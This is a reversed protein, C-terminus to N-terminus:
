FISPARHGGFVRELEGCIEGLTAGADVADILRPVLNDTAAAAEAVRALAARAQAGDRAERHAAVQARRRAELSEDLRFEVRPPPEGDLVHENVGVVKKEGREIARQEAVASRHIERQTFGAEIAKVAGGLADVKGILERAGAEIADTLDEVYPCGGLPDIVRAVGSEHALVQQTRLALVAARESPLALAEDWANTHLSQTGGLVAALAQLTVRAVNVDPQQATLTSGGTQTHFRLALSSEQRPAFREQMLRAWLRRAARFKAVEEFLDSHAAFFFSLRSAFADVDLGAAVAAGVYALGHALTFGVEQVATCGAERM